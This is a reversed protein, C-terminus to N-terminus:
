IFSNIFDNKLYTTSVYMTSKIHAFFSLRLLKGFGYPRSGTLNFNLYCYDGSVYIFLFSERLNSWAKLFVRVEIKICAYENNFNVHM